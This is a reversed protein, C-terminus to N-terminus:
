VDDSLSEVEMPVEGDECFAADIFGAACGNGEDFRENAGNREREVMM